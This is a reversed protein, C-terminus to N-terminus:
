RIGPKRKELKVLAELSAALDIYEHRIPRKHGSGEAVARGPPKTAVDRLIEAAREIQACVNDNLKAM